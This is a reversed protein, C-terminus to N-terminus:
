SFLKAYAKKERERHEKKRQSIKALEGSILADEPVLKSASILDELQQDENKLIGHAMGRRYLAKAKDATSLDLTNLARTTNTVAALANSSSPPNARIATLSSNLLLPTLLAIYTEKLDPSKEPVEQHTDLYRISKQYKQHAEEIKGEKYLKNGLERIVKAIEIATEPKSLDRDEDDPYDEYADGSDLEAQETLSPDDASLEGCNTVIVAALPVDGESTSSNEIQRVISKGKIVEGFIVHKGDLHPTPAVTIFFQSGNTGPGANAMSLLFPKTHQVPFAEDEFKEGYISEGGTGNGATFDGGQCMFGKIVRHFSSGKYHLPKGLQGAGKEGTCLARFNEATKPVLDNYLSFVVRGISKDGISIDFYTIPRHSSM